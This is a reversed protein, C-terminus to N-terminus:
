FAKGFLGYFGRMLDLDRIQNQFNETWFKRRDEVLAPNNAQEAAMCSFNLSVLYDPLPCQAPDRVMSLYINALNIEREAPTADYPSGLKKMAVYRAGTVIDPVELTTYGPAATFQEAGGLKFVQMSKAYDLDFNVRFVAEGLYIAYLRSTWTLQIAAPAANMDAAFCKPPSATGPHQGPACTGPMGPPYEFNQFYDAGNVFRPRVLGATDTKHGTDDYTRYIIPALVNVNESWLAGFHRYLEDRFILSYPVNYRNQDAQIDVGQKDLNPIVAAFMAGLQDNYHGAEMMRNFFGFGSKFDYRSYMRRGPGRPLQVYDEGALRSSYLNELKAMGEANLQDFDDGESIVDWRPGSKLTRYMFLGFPPVSMVNLHQNIGDLVAMTWYDQMMADVKFHVTQEQQRSTQSYLQYAWHKYITATDNFTGYGANVASNGNFWLRDRKFHSDYYYNWYDELYTRAKEYYDPGRDFTYCSLVPGNASEDGCFMYPVRLLPNGIVNAARDPDDLLTPDAAILDAVRQEDAKVQSYKALTRGKLKTIGSEIVQTITSGEGFHLPVTTYHFRETYNPTSPNKYTANVMALDTGAGSITMMAGDSGPFAQSTRRPNSNFVEVYGPENTGSYAFIIAAEDYKGIKEWDGTRKGAYDMISSYEYNYMGGVRQTVTGDAATKLDTPTRPLKQQGSQALTLSEKRLQWYADFYNVSDFSGQFNHRLNFTHGIEHLSTALWTQQRFHRAIEENAINAAEAATCRTPDACSPDGSGQLAVIRAARQAVLENAISQLTRDFFEALYLNNSAVWALRAKQWAQSATLNTTVSRAAERLFQPDQAARAQAFPPLLNVLDAQLDPNDIVAAELEPDTALAAAASEMADASAKPLGGQAALADLLARSKETPRQFAGRTEETRTPIGQLESTLANAKVQKLNYIPNQAIYDRMDQGSIYENVQKEGTLLLIHDVLQRGIMDVGWLYTNATGSILQGTEPDSSSPGYGLLGNAVPEAVTNVFSYRLDGFRPSFGATGCEPRDNQAVPNNCLYFMQRVDAPAKEQAAAIARKFARDYEQELQQGMPYFEDYRTQGGMRDPRSFYYVIPKPERAKLPIPQSLDPEGNADKQYYSKWVRHRQALRIVASDNYGYKRDYNLRETRFYGFVSMLDNPYVLPEYDRSWTTDVKAISTRMKIESSTCDYVGYALYCLPVTGYGEFYMTDPNALYRGTVDFYTLQHQDDYEFVPWDYPDEGQENPQIWSSQNSGGSPNQVTGWSLGSMKNLLNASWDVRMYERQNWPRDTTNESIVNTQEGTAPNYGRAIDFHSSIAFAVVPSGYYKQGGVCKGAPDCYTATTGSVKSNPDVISDAGPSYQYSRYGVLNGEQIEWVLKEMSGTQGPYTFNTNFPTYTVTNRFFWQGDVLDAKKVVNPQVRNIDANSQACAAAFLTAAAAALWRARPSKMM